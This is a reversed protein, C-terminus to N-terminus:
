KGGKELKKRIVWSLPRDKRKAEAMLKRYLPGPLSMSFKVARDRPKKSKTMAQITAGTRGTNWGRDM